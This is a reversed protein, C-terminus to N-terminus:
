EDHGEMYSSLDIHPLEEKFRRQIYAKSEALEEETLSPLVVKFYNESSYCEM